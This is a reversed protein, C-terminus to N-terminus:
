KGQTGGKGTLLPLGSTRIQQLQLFPPPAPGQMLLGDWPLAKTPSNLRQLQLGTIVQEPFPHALAM